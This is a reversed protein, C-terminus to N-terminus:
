SELQELLDILQGLHQLYYYGSQGTPPEATEHVWTYQYPIYVAYAGLALLPMIDSRLSNGIMLFRDARITYRRLIQSYNEIRKDSVIEIYKFYAALGSRSIKMEQDFLDGKTILMLTHTASLRALTESAHEFLEVDANLMTRAIDLIVQIEAGTIRGETLEIATEIMSLTFGKIGYGFHQLNRMETQYLREAVWEPGHYHALIAKLRAQAEVFLRENHWLTDDADFAIIDFRSM